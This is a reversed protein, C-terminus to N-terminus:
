SQDQDTEKVTIREKASDSIRVGSPTTASVRACNLVTVVDGFPTLQITTTITKEDGAALEGLQWTIRRRAQGVADPEDPTSSKFRVRGGKAWHRDVLVVKALDQSGNNKITIAYTLDKDGPAKEDSSQTVELLSKTVELTQKPAATQEDGILHIVHQSTDYTTTGDEDVGSAQIVVIYPSTTDPITISHPCPYARGGALLPQESECIITENEPDSKDVITINHLDATGRNTVTLPLTVPQKPRATTPGSISLAIAPLTDREALRFWSRFVGGPSGNGSPLQGKLHDGDVPEGDCDLIFDCYLTVYITAPTIHRGISEPDITYVAVSGNELKPREEESFDLDKPWNDDPEKYQVRMTHENVGVGEGQEAPAQSINRDFHMELRNGRTELDDLTMYGGHPWNTYVIHTLYDEPLPLRKRGSQDIEFPAPDDPDFDIWALPVTGNCPCYPELCTGAPGPRSADADDQCTRKTYRPQSCDSTVWTPWHPDTAGAPTKWCNAEVEDPKLVDLKAVERVRNAEHCDSGCDDESYIAPVHEIEEEAYRLVLLFPGDMWEEDAQQTEEGKSSEPPLPLRFATDEELILDRGCCDIAIGARVVVWRRACDTDHNKIRDPHYDVSLGCVIGTGHLLRNHLQRRSLFYAQEHEFDRKTMYKGTFYRNRETIIDRCEKTCAEKPQKTQM